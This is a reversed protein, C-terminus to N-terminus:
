SRSNTAFALVFMFAPCERQAGLVRKPVESSYKVIAVREV